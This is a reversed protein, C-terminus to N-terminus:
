LPKPNISILELGDHGGKLRGDMKRARTEM